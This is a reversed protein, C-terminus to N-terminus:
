SGSFSVAPPAVVCRANRRVDIVRPMRLKCDMDLTPGTGFHKRPTRINSVAAGCNGDCLEYLMHGM